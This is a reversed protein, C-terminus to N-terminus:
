KTSTMSTLWASYNESINSQAGGLRIWEIKWGESFSARIDDQSMPKPYFRPYVAYEGAQDSFCGM